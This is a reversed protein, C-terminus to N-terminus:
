TVEEDDPPSRPTDHIAQIPKEKESVDSVPSVASESSNVDTSDEPLTINKEKAKQLRRQVKSHSIGMEKAIDRYSKGEKQLRLVHLVEDREDSSSFHMLHESERAVGRSEFHLYCKEKVLDLVLVNESDYKFEGTRVKVQKLYRLNNDRASCAMAIGADFFSMLKSSGALDDQTIPKFGRRKPTHAVVLLTLGLSKKLRILKMMFDSAQAAAEVDHCLFSMNDVVVIKTGTLAAEEISQLIERELNTGGILEPALEARMYNPPFVHKEGTKPDTYRVQFQKDSLELDLCLVREFKAIDEAIQVALISKGVNTSAFLVTAEGQVILGHFYLKPDPRSAAGDIWDNASKITLVGTTVSAAKDATEPASDPATRLQQSTLKENEM